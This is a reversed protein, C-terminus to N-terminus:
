IDIVGRRIANTNHFGMISNGVFSPLDHLCAHSIYKTYTPDGIMSIECYLKSKANLVIPQTAVWSLPDWWVKFDMCGYMPVQFTWPQTRCKAMHITYEDSNHLNTIPWAECIQWGNQCLKGDELKYLGHSGSQVHHCWHAPRMNKAPVVNNTCKNLIWLVLLLTLRAWGRSHLCLTYLILFPCEIM